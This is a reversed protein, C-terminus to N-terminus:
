FKYRGMQKKKIWGVFMFPVRGLTCASNSVTSILYPHPLDDKGKHSKHGLLPCSQMFLIHTANGHHTSWISIFCLLPTHYQSQGGPLVRAITWSLMTSSAVSSPLGARGEWVQCHCTSTLLYITQWWQPTLGVFCEPPEFNLILTNAFRPGWFRCPCHGEHRKWLRSHSAAQPGGWCLPSAGMGCSGCNNERRTGTEAGWNTGKM